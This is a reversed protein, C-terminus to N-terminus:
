RYKNPMKKSYTRIDIYLYEHISLYGGGQPVFRLKSAQFKSSLFRLETQYYFATVGDGGGGIEASGVMRSGVTVPNGTDVYSGDGEITGLLTFSGNDTVAYVNYSQTSQILGGLRVKKCKKLYDLDLESLETEWYATIDSDDDDFGSFLTYVNNTISDGALLAGNYNAFCSVTYDLFDTAGSQKNYLIVRNNKTSDETRCAFLIYDGWEFSAAQDFLYGTLDVGLVIGESERKSVSRPEVQTGLSNLSLLKLQTNTQDVDDVYYVGHSTDIAARPNPIGIQVRFPLNTANTDTNSLTLAWTRFKHFCYLVENYLCVLMAAGGGDDQRFVFGEGALRPTSKTFDGLGDNNSNEWSYDVAIDVAGAPATAFTVSIAGTTYNITGTSGDTASLNGGYDDTLVVAGATVVIGYCTRLSSGAKFALTDNFTTTSGDGTGISEASVTTNTGTDIYSGYIGSQDKVRGWLILRSYFARIWGTFNTNAVTLDTYSGPNATMIKYLGSNPSSFFTQSGALSAYNAFFVKEGSAAAPLLNSSLEVWDDTAADYYKVKRAYTKYPIQTGDNQIAIHIGTVEGVGDDSAGLQEYGRRLEIRDGLSLFNLAKSAAGHPIARDEITNITGFPFKNIPKIRIAM